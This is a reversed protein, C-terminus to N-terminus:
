KGMWKHLLRKELAASEQPNKGERDAIREALEQQSKVPWYQHGDKGLNWVSSVQNVHLPVYTSLTDMTIGSLIARERARWSKHWLRKGERESHCTTNGVIPTKRYSRSM